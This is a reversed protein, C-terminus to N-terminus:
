QKGRDRWVDCNRGKIEKRLNLGMCYFQPTNEKEGGHLPSCASWSCHMSYYLSCNVCMQTSWVLRRYTQYYIWFSWRWLVPAVAMGASLLSRRINTCLAYKTQSGALYKWHAPHVCRHKPKPLKPQPEVKPLRILARWMDSMVNTGPLIHTRTIALLTDKDRQGVVIFFCTNTERCIGGLVWEGEIYRGRTYMYMTKGFNSKDWHIQGVVSAICIKTCRAAHMLCQLTSKKCHLRTLYFLFSNQIPFDWSFKTTYHHILSVRLRSTRPFTLPELGSATCSFFFFFFPFSSPYYSSFSLLISSPFSFFQRLSLACPLACDFGRKNVCYTAIILTYIWYGPSNSNDEFVISRM